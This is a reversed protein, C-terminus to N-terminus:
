EAGSSSDASDGGAPIGNHLDQMAQMAKNEIADMRGPDVNYSVDKEITRLEAETKEIARLEAETKAIEATAAQGEASVSYNADAAQSQPQQSRSQNRSDNTQPNNNRPPSSSDNDSSSEAETKAIEAAAAQGEASSSDNDSSSEAETKAIEAAAAQEEASVSYNADAAQSQPQQSRSQNRFDNTQPDNNRPPSPPNNWPRSSSDNDSSSRGPSRGNFLSTTKGWLKKAGDTIGTKKAAYKTGKVAVKGAGYALGAMGQAATATSTMATLTEEGGAGLSADSFFDAFKEAQPILYICYCGLAAMIFLNRSENPINKCLDNDEDTSSVIRLPCVANKLGEGALNAETIYELGTMNQIIKVAFQLLVSMCVFYFVVNLMCNIGKQGFSKTPEFAFSGIYLPAFAYLLGKKLLVDFMAIPFLVGVVWSFVFGFCGSIFIAPDPLTFDIFGFASLKWIWKLCGMATMGQAEVVALKMSADTAVGLDGGGGALEAPLSNVVPEWIYEKFGGSLIACVCSVRIFRGGIRTFFELFNTETMSGVLKLTQVAFWLLYVAWLFKVMGKATAGYVSSGISETKKAIVSYPYEYWFDKQYETKKDTFTKDCGQLYENEATLDMEFKAVDAFSTRTM